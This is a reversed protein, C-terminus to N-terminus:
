KKVADLKAIMAAPGGSGYGVWRALEKGEGDFVIVTPYGRIGFKEKLEKNQAKVEDTLSKSRPYDLEVLVLHKAAYDKFEQQAFVEAAQKKCPPCWDSGTFEAFLLKKEAKARALSEQYNDSWGEAAQLTLSGLAAVAGVALAKLFTTKM